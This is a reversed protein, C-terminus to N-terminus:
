IGVSEDQNAYFSREMFEDQSDGGDEFSDGGGSEFAATYTNDDIDRALRDITAQIELDDPDTPPGRGVNDPRSSSSSKQPPTRRSSTSQTTRAGPRPRQTAASAERREMMRRYSDMMMANGEGIGTEQDDEDAREFTMEDHYFSDLSDPDLTAGEIDRRGQRGVAAFEKVNTEYVDAIEKFGIYVDNPTTLAPLSSIGRKRLAGVLQANKLDQARIKNVKVALGMKAFVPLRAHVYKLVQLTLIRSKHDPDGDPVLKVYLNHSVNSTDARSLDTRPGVPAGRYGIM